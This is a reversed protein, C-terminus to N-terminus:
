SLFCLSTVIIREFRCALKNGWVHFEERNAIAAHSAVTTTQSSRPGWATTPAAVPTAATATATFTATARSTSFPIRKQSLIIKKAKLCAIMLEITPRDTKRTCRLLGLREAM